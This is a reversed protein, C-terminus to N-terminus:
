VSNKNAIAIEALSETTFDTNGIREPIIMFFVDPHSRLFAVKAAKNLREADMRAWPRGPARFRFNLDRFELSENASPQQAVPLSGNRLGRAAGVGFMIFCFACLVLTWIAQARGQYYKGKREAYEALGVIALIFAALVSGMALLSLLGVLPVLNARQIVGILGFLLWAGFVLGLSFVCKFNTTPRRSISICKVIGLAVGILVTLQGAVRGATYADSQSAVEAIIM